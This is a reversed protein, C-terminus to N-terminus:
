RSYTEIHKQVKGNDDITLYQLYGFKSFGSNAFHNEIDVEACHTHGCVFVYNGLHEFEEKISRKVKNNLQGFLIWVGRIGFLRVFWKHILEIAVFGIRKPREIHYTGDFKLAYKDGHEFIFNTNAIKTIHQHDALECFQFIRNDIFIEKDHNGFLYITKKSKLLPFLKVWPTKLFDEFTFDYGEWFDGNLIVQDSESILNELRRFKEHEYKHDLHTDSLVLLKM